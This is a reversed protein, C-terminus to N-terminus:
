QLKAGSKPNAALGEDEIKCVLEVIDGVSMGAYNGQCLRGHLGDEEVFQHTWLRRRFTAAAAVSDIHACVPVDLM